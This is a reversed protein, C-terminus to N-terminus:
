TSGGSGWLDADGMTSAAVTALGGKNGGSRGLALPARLLLIGGATLVGPNSPPGVDDAPGDGSPASM